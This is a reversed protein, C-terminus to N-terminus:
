NWRCCRCTACNPPSACPTWNSPSWGAGTSHDGSTAVYVEPTAHLVGALLLLGAPLHSRWESFRAQRGLTKM